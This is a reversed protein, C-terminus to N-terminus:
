IRWKIYSQWVGGGGSEIDAAQRHTDEYMLWALAEDDEPHFVEHLWGVSVRHTRHLYRM